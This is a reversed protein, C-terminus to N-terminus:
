TINVFVVNDGQEVEIRLGRLGSLLGWIAVVARGPNVRYWVCAAAVVVVALLLLPSLLLFVPLLPIWIRVPRERGDQVRVRVIQPMM